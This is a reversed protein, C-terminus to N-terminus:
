QWWREDSGPPWRMAPEQVELVQETSDDWSIGRWRITGDDRTTPDELAARVLTRWWRGALDRYEVGLWTAVIPTAQAILPGFTIAASVGGPPVLGVHGSALPGEVTPNHIRATTSLAPGPGVNRVLFTIRSEFRGENNAATYRVEEIHLFPQLAALRARIAEDVQTRAIDTQERAADAQRRLEALQAQADERQSRLEALEDQAALRQQRIEDLTRKVLVVYVATVVAAALAGLASLMAWTNSWNIPGPVFPWIDIM